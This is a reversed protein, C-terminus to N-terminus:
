PNKEATEAIEATSFIGHTGLRFDEVNIGGGGLQPVLEDGPLALQAPLRHPAGAAPGRFAHARPDEIRGAVEDGVREGHEKGTGIGLRGGLAELELELARVIREIAVFLGHREQRGVIVLMGGVEGAHHRRQHAGSRGRKLPQEGGALADQVEM